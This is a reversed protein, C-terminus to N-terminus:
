RTVERALIEAYRQEAAAMAHVQTGYADDSCGLEADSTVLTQYGESDLTIRFVGYDTVAEYENMAEVYHWELKM